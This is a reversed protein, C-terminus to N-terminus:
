KRINLQQRMISSLNIRKDLSVYSFLICAVIVPIGLFYRLYDSFDIGILFTTATFAFQVSLLKMAKANIKIKYLKYCLVSMHLQYTIYGSIFAIGIGSLGWLYYGSINFILM